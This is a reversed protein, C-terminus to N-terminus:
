PFFAGQTRGHGTRRDYDIDAQYFRAIIARATANAVAPMDACSSHISFQSLTRFIEQGAKIGHEKHGDEHRQLASIYRHWRNVVAPSSRREDQWQPMTFTVEIDVFVRRPDIRCIGNVFNFYYRWRVYWRTFGDFKKGQHWIPSNATMSQRITAVNTGYVPYNKTAIRVCPQSAFSAKQGLWILLIVALFILAFRQWQRTTM